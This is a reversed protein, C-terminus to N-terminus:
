KENDYMDKFILKYAHELNRSSFILNPNELFLQLWSMKGSTMDILSQVIDANKDSLYEAKDLEFNAVIDNKSYQYKDKSEETSHTFYLLLKELDRCQECFINQKIKNHLKYYDLWGKRRPRNFSLFLHYHPEKEDKNHYIYAYRKVDYELLNDLDEKDYVILSYM